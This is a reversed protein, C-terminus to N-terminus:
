LVFIIPFSFQLSTKEGKYIPAIWKDYSTIVRIAENDLDKHVPQVVKLKAIEGNKDIYFEVVVKGQINKSACYPPYKLSRSVKKRLRNVHKNIEDSNDLGDIEVVYNFKEDGNTDFERTLGVAKGNDFTTTQRINGNKFYWIFDGHQVKPELSEYIGTMQVEGSKWYDTVNILGSENTSTRYYDFKEKTVQEWKSNFYVTDTKQQGFVFNSSLMFLFFLQIIKM